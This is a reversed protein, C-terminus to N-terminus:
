ANRLLGDFKMDAIRHLFEAGPITDGSHDHPDLIADDRELRPVLEHSELSVDIVHGLRALASVFLDIQINLPAMVKLVEDRPGCCEIIMGNSAALEAARAADTPDTFSLGRMMGLGKATLQNLHRAEMNLCWMELLRSRNEIGECFEHTWLDLAAAATVFALSNGRFTGNHEGPSWADHEPRMLLLSMPFGYGSISKALCVIDPVIGAREFSFFPGTRGCATQIEDVILLAGLRKAMASLATLWEVSAVNLGGEGQVTEVIIAAVPDVGGSPDMAMTEFRFIDEVGAGCYGEFPLRVVGGLLGQASARCSASGTAALSGMSVGHFANSFAVISARGTVKRALKMAAEVCNTGTPGPFQMRYRFGRPALIQQEFQSMFSLKAETHFDLGASIGDSLLYDVAASRLHPHNHGYNLAGCASLLDIHEEGEADIVIAGQASKLLAPVRRCYSRVNSEHRSFFDLHQHGSFSHDLNM